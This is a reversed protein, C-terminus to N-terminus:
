EISAWRGKMNDHTVHGRTGMNFGQIHLHTKVLTTVNFRPRYPPESGGPSTDKGSILVRVCVSPRRCPSGPLPCLRGWAQEEGAPKLTRRSGVWLM